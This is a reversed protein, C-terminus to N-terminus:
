AFPHFGLPLRLGLYLVLIFAVLLQYWLVKTRRNKSTRILILELLSIIWLGVVIKLIYLPTIIFLLMGGTAIVILYFLRLVMHVIKAGKSKGNKYMSHAIFFLVFAIVWATIHAHTTM